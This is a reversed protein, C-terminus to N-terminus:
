SSSKLSVEASTQFQIWTRLQSPSSNHLTWHRNRNFLKVEMEDAYEKHEWRWDLAPIHPAQPRESQSSDIMRLDTGVNCDLEVCVRSRIYLMWGQKMIKELHNLGLLIKLLNWLSLLKSMFSLDLSSNEPTLSMWRFRHHVLIISNQTWLQDYM